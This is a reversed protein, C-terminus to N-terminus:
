TSGARGDDLGQHTTATVTLDIATEDRAQTDVTVDAAVVTAVTGTGGSDTDSTTV